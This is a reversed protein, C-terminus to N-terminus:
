YYAIQSVFKFIMLLMKLFELVLVSHNLCSTCVLNVHSSLSKCDIDHVEDSKILTGNQIQM